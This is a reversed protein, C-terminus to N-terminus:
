LTERPFASAQNRQNNASRRSEAPAAPMAVSAVGTIPTAAADSCSPSRGEAPSAAPMARMM